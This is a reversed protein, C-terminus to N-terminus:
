AQQQAQQQAKVKAQLVTVVLELDKRKVAIARGIKEVNDKLLALKRGLFEEAGKLDKPVMFNTGIEVLVQQPNVLKGPVYLSETLPVLTEHGAELSRMGEVTGLSELFKERAMRLQQMSSSLVEIDQQVQTKMQSLYELPLSALQQISLGADTM